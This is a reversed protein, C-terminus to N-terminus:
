RKHRWKQFKKPISLIEKLRSQTNKKEVAITPFERHFITSLEEAEEVTIQDGLSILQKNEEETLPSTLEAIKPIQLPVEKQIESEEPM